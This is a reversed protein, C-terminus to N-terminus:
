QAGAKAVSGNPKTEHFIEAQFKYIKCPNNKWFNPPLGAKQCTMFLAEEPTCNYEAFVQPLLLGSGYSSRIILGDEGIKIQKPYDKAKLEQPVTLISIEIDIKELEKKTVPSFRPDHFAASKAAAIVADQLPMIPEPFGICGRLNKDLHLTVFVGQKERLHATLKKDATEKTFSSSISQRALKVLKTADDLSTMNM